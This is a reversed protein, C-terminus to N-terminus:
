FSPDRKSTTFSIGTGDVSNLVIGRCSLITDEDLFHPESATGGDVRYMGSYTMGIRERRKM